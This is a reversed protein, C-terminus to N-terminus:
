IYERMTDYNGAAVVVKGRDFCAYRDGTILRGGITEVINGYPTSARSLESNDIVDMYTRALDGNVIMGELRGDEDLVPLAVVKLEKMMEWARKLSLDGSIGQTRRFNSDKIQAGVNGVFEPLEVGFRKLVYRTEGNLDGCRKPIYTASEGDLKNKYNAYTIAACIADTDPNKHGIVWVQRKVTDGM